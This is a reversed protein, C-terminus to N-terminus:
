IEEPCEQPCAPSPGSGPRRPPPFVWAPSSAAPALGESPFTRLASGPKLPFLPGRPCIASSKRPPRLSKQDLGQGLEAGFLHRLMEQVAAVAQQLIRGLFPGAAVAVGDGLDRALAARYPSGIRSSDIFLGSDDRVKPHARHPLCPKDAGPQSQPLGLSVWFPYQCGEFPHYVQQRQPLM